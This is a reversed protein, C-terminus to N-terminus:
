EAGDDLRVTRRAPDISAVRRGLLMEINKEAYFEAPWLPIWDDQAEGALYDKSLNPRDVPPDGDASIMILPGDYGERRIMEAAAVGAAGGGVIVISSPLTSSRKAPTPPASMKERVFIQDGEREVRWCAIPDLAPARLAEGTRLSYCAHHWPCRITDGVVLGEVLPGHYHTCSAGVAFLRDGQRVLIAKEKGVRGLVQGGDPLEQLAFGQTFDPPPVNRTDAM